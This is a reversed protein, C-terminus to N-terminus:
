QDTAMHYDKASNSLPLFSVANLDSEKPAEGTEEQIQQRQLALNAGKLRQTLKRIGDVVEFPINMFNLENRILQIHVNRLSSYRVEGKMHGTQEFGRLSMIANPMVTGDNDPNFIVHSYEEISQLTRISQFQQECTTLRKRVDKWAEHRDSCYEDVANSCEIIEQIALCSYFTGRVSEVKKGSELEGTLKDVRNGITGKTFYKNGKWERVEAERKAKYKMDFVTSSCCLALMSSFHQDKGTATCKNANKVWTEVLQTNSPIIFWETQVYTQFLEIAEM